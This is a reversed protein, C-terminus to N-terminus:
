WKEIAICRGSGSGIGISITDVHIVTLKTNM